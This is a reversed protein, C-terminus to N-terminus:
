APFTYKEKDEVSIADGTQVEIARVTTRAILTHKSGRPMQVIDGAGVTRKEGDVIVEGEGEIITWTEDRHSHSHYNMKHGANLTVKITMSHAAADIVQFSGWSKEAYMVPEDLRDVYPKIYSSQEKDSVIIGDPSAAVVTDKLGMCLIPIDLDNIVHVNDCTDSMLVHGITHEEMAETLTNWTGLDKWAGDYPVALIDTEKEAVAYDFSVPTLSEYRALLDEYTDAGTIEKARALLYSLRCAFVGGNWLAGDEILRAATEKDPKERYSAIRSIGEDDPAKSKDRVLYGYKESPYTPAIGMVTLRAKGEAAVADMKKLTDFYSDDVFPDVPCVVVVEGADVGQKDHLYAGALVIAPFTDRRAPEMSIAADPGIQNKLASVQTRPTAITIRADPAVRKLGAVMRQVMSRYTGDAEKFIRLFQKSRIDNSLPWLRKGSGGSLLIVNM